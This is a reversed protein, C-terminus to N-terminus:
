RGAVEVPAAGIGAAANEMQRQRFREPPAQEIRDLEENLCNGANYRLAEACGFATTLVGGLELRVSGIPKAQVHDVLRRMEVERVGLTQALELSEELLRLAREKPLMADVGLRTVVWRRIRLQADDVNLNM